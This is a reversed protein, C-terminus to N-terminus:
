TWQRVSQRRSRTRPKTEVQTRGRTRKHLQVAKVVRMLTTPRLIQAPRHQSERPTVTDWTCEETQTPSLFGRARQWHRRHNRPRTKRRARQHTARQYNHTKHRTSCITTIPSNTTTTIATATKMSQQPRRVPNAEAWMIVNPFLTNAYRLKVDDVRANSRDNTRAYQNGRTVAVM